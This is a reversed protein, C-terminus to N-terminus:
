QLELVRECVASWSVLPHQSYSSFSNLFQIRLHRFKQICWATFCFILPLGERVICMPEVWHEAEEGLSQSLPNAVVWQAVNCLPSCSPSVWKKIMCSAVIYMELVTSLFPPLPTLSPSSFSPLSPLLSLFLSFLLSILVFPFLSLLPSHSLFVGM